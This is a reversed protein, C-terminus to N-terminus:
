APSAPGRAPLGRFLEAIAVSAAIGANLSELGPRGGPIRLLVDCFQKTRLRLGEGEAGIVLVSRAAFDAEALTKEGREDLGYVWFGLQKLIDLSRALNIVQFIKVFEAGGVAVRTVVPSIEAARDKMILVADVGFFAASRLITGLNQPDSLQDLALVVRAERLLELDHEQFVTRPEAFVCVGQHKDDPSFKGARQFQVGPLIEPEVGVSRAMEVFEQLYRQAGELMLLRRVAQPRTLFVARVSHKGFIKEM